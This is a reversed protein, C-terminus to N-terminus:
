SVPCKLGGCFLVCMIMKNMTSVPLRYIGIYGYQPYQIYSVLKQFLHLLEEIERWESFVALTGGYSYCIAQAEKWSVKDNMIFTSYSTLSSNSTKRHYQGDAKILTKVDKKTRFTYVLNDGDVDNVTRIISYVSAMKKDENDSQNCHPQALKFELLHQSLAWYSYVTMTLKTTDHMLRLSVNMQYLTTETYGHATPSQWIIGDTVTVHSNLYIHVGGWCRNRRITIGYSLITPSVTRDVYTIPISYVYHKTVSHLLEGNSHTAHIVYQPAFHNDALCYFLYFMEIFTMPGTVEMQRARRLQAYHKIHEVPSSLVRFKQTRGFPYKNIIYHMFSTQKTNHYWSNACRREDPMSKYYDAFTEYAIKMWFMNDEMLVYPNDYFFYCHKFKHGCYHNKSPVFAFLFYSLHETVNLPQYQHRSMCHNKFTEFDTFESNKNLCPYIKLYSSVKYPKLIHGHLVSMNVTRQPRSLVVCVPKLIYLYPAFIYNGVEKITFCKECKFTDGTWVVSTNPWPADVYNVRPINGWPDKLSLPTVPLDFKICSSTQILLSVNISPNNSFAHKYVTILAPPRIIYFPKDVHFLNCGMFRSDVFYENNYEDISVGAVCEELVSVHTTNTELNQITINLSYTTSMLKYVRMDAGM